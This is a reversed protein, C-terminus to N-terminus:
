YGLKYTMSPLIYPSIMLRLSPMSEASIYIRLGDKHSSHPHLTCKLDFKNRLTLLLRDVSASDFGYVNLHLGYNQRSGDDMIWYALGVPTLLEYIDIPVIKVSETYFIARFYTFCPLQMTAFSVSSYAVGKTFFDKIYASTGPTCFPMFLVLVHNFYERKALKATQGFIFKASSTFSRLQIHGDGLM